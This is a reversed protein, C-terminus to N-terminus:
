TPEPEARLDGREATATLAALWDRNVPIPADTDFRFRLPIAPSLWVTERGSRGDRTHIYSLTFSEHRRLKSIIVIKLHALLRDDFELMQGPGYILVGM